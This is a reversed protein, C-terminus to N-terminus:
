VREIAGGDKHYATVSSGEAEEFAYGLLKSFVSQIKQRTIGLSPKPPKEVVEPEVVEPKVGTFTLAHIGLGELFTVSVQMNGYRTIQKSEAAKALSEKVWDLGEEWDPAIIVVLGALMAASLLVLDQRDKSNAVLLTVKTVEEPPGIIELQARGERHLGSVSTQGDYLTSESLSFGSEEFPEQIEERTIGLGPKKPLEVVEVVEPEVAKPPEVVEPEQKEEKPALLAAIVAGVIFLGFGIGFYYKLFKVVRSNGAKPKADVM